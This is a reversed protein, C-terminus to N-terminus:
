GKKERRVKGKEGRLKRKKKGADSSGRSGSSGRGDGVGEEEESGGRGEEHREGGCHRRLGWGAQRPGAGTPGWERRM